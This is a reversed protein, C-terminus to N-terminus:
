LIHLDWILHSLWIPWICRTVQFLAACVLFNLFHSPLPAGGQYIHYSTQLGASVLVVVWPRWGAQTLRTQLYARVVLEEMSAAHFAGLAHFLVGQGSGNGAGTVSAALDPFIAQSAHKMARHLVHGLPVLLV